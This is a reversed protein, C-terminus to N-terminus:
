EFLDKYHNEYYTIVINNAKLQTRADSVLKQTMNNYLNDDLALKDYIFNFISKNSDPSTTTSCLISLLQEDSITNINASDVLNEAIGDHYIIHLGYTSAVIDM